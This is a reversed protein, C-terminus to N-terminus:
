HLHYLQAPCVRARGPGQAAALGAGGAGPVARDHDGGGRIVQAAPSPCASRVLQGTAAPVTALATAAGRTREAYSSQIM